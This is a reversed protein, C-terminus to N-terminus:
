LERDIWSRAVAFGYATATEEMNFVIGTDLFEHSHLGSQDEWTIRFYPRWDSGAPEPRSFILCPKYSEHEM